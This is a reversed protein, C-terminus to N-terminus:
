GSSFLAAAEEIMEDIVSLVKQIDERNPNDYHIGAAVVVQEKCIQTLAKAWMESVVGDKHNPFQTTTCNGDQLIISVAGIHSCSGGYILVHIGEDLRVIRAILEKGFLRRTIEFQRM